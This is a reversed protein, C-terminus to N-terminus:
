RPMTEVAVEAVVGVVEVVGVVVGVGVAVAAFLRLVRLWRQRVKLRQVVAVLMMM